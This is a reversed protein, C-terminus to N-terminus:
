QVWTIQADVMFSELDDDCDGSQALRVGRVKQCHVLLHQDANADFHQCFCIVHVSRSLVALPASNDPFM